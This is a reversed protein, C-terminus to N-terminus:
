AILIDHEPSNKKIQNSVADQRAFSLLIVHLIKVLTDSYLDLGAVRWAPSFLNEPLMSVFQDLADQKKIYGAVETFSSHMQDLFHELYNDKMSVNTKLNKIKMQNGIMKADQVITGPNVLTETKTRPQECNLFQKICQVMMKLTKKMKRGKGSDDGHFSEPMVLKVTVGKM